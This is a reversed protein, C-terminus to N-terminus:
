RENNTGVDLVLPYLDGCTLGLLQSSSSPVLSVQFLFSFLTIENLLTAIRMITMVILVNLIIGAVLAQPSVAAAGFLAITTAIVGVVPLSYAAIGM